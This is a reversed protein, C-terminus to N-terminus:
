TSLLFDTQITQIFPRHRDGDQFTRPLHFAAALRLDYIKRIKLNAVQAPERQTRLTPPYPLGWLQVAGRTVEDEDLLGAPLADEGWTPARKGLHHCQM